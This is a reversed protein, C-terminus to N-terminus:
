HLQIHVTIAIYLVVTHLSTYIVTIMTNLQFFFITQLYIFCGECKSPLREPYSFFGFLICCLATFPLDLYGSYIYTSYIYIVVKVSVRYANQIVAYLM